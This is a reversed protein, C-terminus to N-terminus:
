GLVEMGCLARGIFEQAQDSTPAMVIPARADRFLREIGLGRSLASGGCTRMALDTVHIVAENAAAKAELVLLQTAASPHEVADITATLHARARDTEIRMQALRARARPFDALQVGLHELKKSMLHSRTAQVAAEAIGVCVAANSLQFVPLVVGLMVDLGKGDPSLARDAGIVVNELRMPASANGRLGMGQWQGAVSFGEDSRMVLYLMSQTPETAGSWGTSVVYGDAVGAATVFSKEANLRVHGNERVERSVPVWFFSGSGRESWALTSLHGGSAAARLLPATREPAATYCAIGALHMMYIMATSPCRQALEDLVACAVRLGQGMGGHETPVTLGLFGADGLASVSDHPFSAEADVQAANPAITRDAIERAQAVIAAQEPTLRYMVDM